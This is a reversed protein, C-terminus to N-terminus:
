TRTYELMIGVLELDGPLDDSAVDRSLEIVMLDDAAVNAPDITASAVMIDTLLESTFFPHTINVTTDVTDASEFEESNALGITLINYQGSVVGGPTSAVKSFSTVVINGGNYDPMPVRWIAHESTTDDFTLYSFGGYTTAGLEEVLGAPNTDPLYASEAPLYINVTQSGGAAAQFTPAVGVGNSTLVHTATGVAVVAPAGAADWTILEGDTGNSLDAVDVNSLSNGTGNADFTKNTFTDTTAKGVLTDTTSPLTLTTTGAIVAANLISSGSTSGALIFKGVAGGITGFTKAGTVTQVNALVMDGGASAFDSILAKKLSDTDSTDAILVHDSGVATVLAKGSIATKDIEIYEWGSGTGREMTNLTTDIYVETTTGTAPKNVTTGVLTRNGIQNGYIVQYAM